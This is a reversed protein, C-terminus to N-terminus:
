DLQCGVGGHYVHVGHVCVCLHVGWLYACRCIHHLADKFLVLDMASAGPELAYDELKETLLEKLTNM